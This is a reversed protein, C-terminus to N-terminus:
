RTRRLWIAPSGPLALTERNASLVFNFSGETKQDSTPKSGKGSSGGGRNTPKIRIEYDVLVETTKFSYHQGNNDDTINGSVVDFYYTTNPELGTLTVAHFMVLPMGSDDGIKWTGLSTTKGYEVKSDFNGNKTWWYITAQEHTINCVRVDSIVPNITDNGLTTFSYWQGNNDGIGVNGNLDTGQLYFYYTTNPTLGNITVVTKIAYPGGDIEQIITGHPQLALRLIDEM